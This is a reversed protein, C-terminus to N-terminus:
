YDLKETSLIKFSFSAMALFNLEAQKKIKYGVTERDDDEDCLVTFEGNYSGYNVECNHRVKAM